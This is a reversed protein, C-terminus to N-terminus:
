HTMGIEVGGLGRFSIALQPDTVTRKRTDEGAADRMAAM